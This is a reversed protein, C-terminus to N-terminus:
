IKKKTYFKNALKIIESQKFYLDDITLNGNNVSNHYVNFTKLAASIWVAEDIKDLNIM